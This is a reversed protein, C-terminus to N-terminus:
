RRLKRREAGTLGGWVGFEEKNQLAYKACDRILTCRQCYSKAVKAAKNVEDGYDEPFFVDPNLMCEPEEVIVKRLFEYYRSNFIDTM